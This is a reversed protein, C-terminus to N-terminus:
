PMYHRFITTHGGRRFDWRTDALEDGCQSLGAGHTAARNGFSRDLAAFRTASAAFIGLGAMTGVVAQSLGNRAFRVRPKQRGLLGSYGLLLDRGSALKALLDVGIPLDALLPSVGLHFKRWRGGGPLDL